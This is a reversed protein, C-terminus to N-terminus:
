YQPTDSPVVKYFTMQHACSALIPSLLYAYRQTTSIYYM